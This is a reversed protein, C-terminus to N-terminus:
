PQAIRVIKEDRVQGWDLIRQINKDNGLSLSGTLGKYEYNPIVQMANLHEILNFADYGMAFLRKNNDQRKPWLNGSDVQLSKFQNGPLMWPMDMFQLNRLDRLSNASRTSSHSRSSAYVPLIDAFPSTNAEIFPTIIETEANNAFIVISDIDRRSRDFAHVEPIIAAEIQKIRKRSDAVNLLKQIGSRMTRTNTFSVTELEESLGEHMGHWTNLFASTMRKAAASDSQIIVPKQYGERFLHRALQRGEGEPSLAFFFPSQAAPPDTIAPESPTIELLSQNDNPQNLALWPHPILSEVKGINQKLLPGVVFDLGTFSEETLEDQSDIFVLESMPRADVSVSRQEAQAYYAALIGEKLATGQSALRGSLPLIIGLKTPQFAPTNLLTNLESPPQSGYIHSPNRQKWLQFAQNLKQTNAANSHLIVYLDVLPTLLSAERSHQALQVPSLKGLLQWIRNLHETSSDSLSGLQEAALWWHQQQEYISAQLRFKRELLKPLNEVQALTRTLDPQDTHATRHQIQRHQIQKHRAQWNQWACEAHLLNLESRLPQEISMPMLRSTIALTKDCRTPQWNLAARYLSQYQQQGSQRQAQTLFFEPSNHQTVVPRNVEQKVQISSLRAPSNGCSSLMLLAPLLSLPFLYSAKFFM